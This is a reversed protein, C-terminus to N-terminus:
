RTLVLEATCLFHDLRTRAAEGAVVSWDSTCLIKDPRTGGRRTPADIASVVFGDSVGDPLSDVNFDGCVVAPGIALAKFLSTLASWTEALVPDAANRGFRHLPLLHISAVLATEGELDVRGILAGKDHSVWAQGGRATTLAPNPLRVSGTDLLPARSLLALGLSEGEVLHSPSLPIAAVHAIEIEAALAAAATATSQNRQFAVEQLAVVDAHCRSLRSVVEAYGSASPNTQGEVNWSAVRM